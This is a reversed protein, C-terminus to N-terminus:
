AVKDWWLRSRYSQLYLLTFERFIYSSDEGKIAALDHTAITAKTRNACVDQSINFQM